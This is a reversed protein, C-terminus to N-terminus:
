PPATDARDSMPEGEHYGRGAYWRPSAPFFEGDRYAIKGSLIVFEPFVAPIGEFPTWGARSHLDDACIPSSRKGFIAFDARDGPSYGAKKIGLLEAPRWSTKTILSNQTLSGSRSAAVLLPLM